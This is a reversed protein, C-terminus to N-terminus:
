WTEEGPKHWAHRLTPLLGIFDIIIPVIIGIAPSNFVVWFTLGLVAGVQCAIDFSTFKVFGYKLGFVVVLGTCVSSGYLLIATKPEGAVLAATGSITTLMTWTIWSVINPKTKGRVIDILYPITSLATILAAFLALLERWDNIM